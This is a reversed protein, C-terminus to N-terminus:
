CICDPYNTIRSGPESILRPASLRCCRLVPNVALVLSGSAYKLSYSKALSQLLSLLKETFMQPFTSINELMGLCASIRGSWLVLNYNPLQRYGNIYEKFLDEFGKRVDSISEM